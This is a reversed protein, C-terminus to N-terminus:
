DTANNKYDVPKILGSYRFLWYAFSYKEDKPLIPMKDKFKEYEELATEMAKRYAPNFHMMSINESIPMITNGSM